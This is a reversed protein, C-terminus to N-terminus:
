SPEMRAKKDAHQPCENEDVVMEVAADEKGSGQLVEAEGSQPSSQPLELPIFEPCVEVVTGVVSGYADRLRLSRGHNVEVCASHAHLVHQPAVGDAFGGRASVELARDGTRRLFVGRATSEVTAVDGVAAGFDGGDLMAPAGAAVVLGDSSGCTLRSARSFCAAPRLPTCALHVFDVHSMVVLLHVEKNTADDTGLLSYM